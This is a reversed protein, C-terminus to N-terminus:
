AHEREIEPLFITFMGLLPLYACIQFVHGIGYSDAFAGIVASGIGAIGFALGFFLGAVMGVKGPM